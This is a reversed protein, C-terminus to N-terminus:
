AGAGEALLDIHKQLSPMWRVLSALDATAVRVEQGHRVRRSRDSKLPPMPTAVVTHAVDLVTLDAAIETASAKWEGCGNERWMALGDESLVGCSRIVGVVRRQAARQQESLRVGTM